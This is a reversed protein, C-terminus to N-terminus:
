DVIRVELAEVSVTSAAHGHEIAIRGPGFRSETDMYDTLMVGNIWIRIHTGGEVERVAVFYNFWTDSPILQARISKLGALSGTKETSPFTSNILAAYGEVVELPDQVRLVLSAQGGDSIKIRARLDFSRYDNRTSILAGKPGSAVLTVDDLEWEADGTLIWNDFQEEPFVPAWKPSGTRPLPNPHGRETPRVRIDRFAVESGEGWLVVPGVPVETEYISTASVGPVNIGELVTRGDVLIQEFRADSVKGDKGLRPARFRLDVEHWEGAHRYANFRPAITNWSEAGNISFCLGAEGENGKPSDILAVEYRGMLLIGSRGGEPLMFGLHLECDGFSNKSTYHSPQDGTNVLAGNGTTIDFHTGEDRAIEANVLEWGESEFRDMPDGWSLMLWGEQGSEKSPPPPVIKSVHQNTIPGEPLQNITYAFEPHLLAEGQDGVLGDFKVRAVMAPTLGVTEVRLHTRDESLVCGTVEVVTHHQPPSGYEWWYNYDYQYVSACDSGLDVEASIPKTFEVDFGSQRLQVDQIELPSRGTWRVRALGDSPTRGGWGRNTMGCFLTGDPSFLVRAVSGIGQRFPQIWGQYEGRVKEMNCRLVMGNTLEAVFLDDAFPGFAGDTSDHVMNGTSRSWEYPIWVAAPRRQNAAAPPPVEDSALTGSARYEPTWELSAPHGYFGDKVLHYIPSSACWDGQNDTIFIDGQANQGVGCPSRFGKAWPTMEGDPSIRLAWGRYPVASKGHWWQPNFFAVNLTVFFNGAEDRPLGFAFEHYNGSLGWDDCLTDIQDCVGDGNLDRLRSLEGRQVVHIDGDVVNMGLGEWMGEAFLRWRADNVDEVEPNELIWVQGRRTSVALEGGPLLGMGGIELRVGPPVPFHEVTYYDNEDEIPATEAALGSSVLLPLVLSLHCPSM